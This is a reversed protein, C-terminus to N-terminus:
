WAYGLLAVAIKLGILSWDNQTQGNNSAMRRNEERNRERMSSVGRFWLPAIRKCRGILARVFLAESPKPTVLSHSKLNSSDTAEVMEQGTDKIGLFTHQFTNGTLLETPKGTSHTLSVLPDLASSSMRLPATDSTYYESKITNSPPATRELYVNLDMHQGDNQCSTSSMLGPRSKMGDPVANYVAGLQSSGLSSNESLAFRISSHSEVPEPKVKVPNVDM